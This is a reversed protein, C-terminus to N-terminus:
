LFKLKFMMYQEDTMECFAGYDMEDTVIIGQLKLWEGIKDVCLSWNRMDTVNNFRGTNNAECFHFVKM